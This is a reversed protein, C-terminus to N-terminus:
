RGLRDRSVLVWPVRSLWSFLRRSSTWPIPSTAYHGSPVTLHGCENLIWHECGDGGGGANYRCGNSPHSVVRVVVNANNGRSSHFPSGVRTRTETESRTGWIVFSPARDWCAVRAWNRIFIGENMM